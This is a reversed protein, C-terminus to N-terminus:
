VSTVNLYRTAPTVYGIGQHLRKYNWFQIYESHSGFYPSEADYRGHFSEIKGITMPRKVGCLIHKIGLSKLTRDFATLGANEQNAHYQPGRDSLIERPKDWRSISEEMLWIINEAKANEFRESGTMFRSHDDMFSILYDEDAIIKIDTQWMSNPHRREFMKSHMGKTRPKDVPNNLGLEVLVKYITTHGLKGGLEAEIKNPGYGYKERITRIRKIDQKTVKKPPLKHPRRSKELLGNWGENQYRHWWSYFTQRPIGLAQCIRKTQWGDLKKKIAWRRRKLDKDM